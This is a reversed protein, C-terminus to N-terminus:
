DVAAVWVFPYRLDTLRPACEDEVPVVVLAVPQEGYRYVYFQLRATRCPPPVGEGVVTIVAVGGEFTYSGFPYAGFPAASADARRCKSAYAASASRACL